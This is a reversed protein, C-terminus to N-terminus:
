LRGTARELREALPRLHELLEPPQDGVRLARREDRALWRQAPVM